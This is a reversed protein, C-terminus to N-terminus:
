ESIIAAIQACFQQLAHPDSPALALQIFSQYIVTLAAFLWLCIACNNRM